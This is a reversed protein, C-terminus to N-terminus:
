VSILQLLRRLEKLEESWFVRGPFDRELVDFNIESFRDDLVEYRAFALLDPFRELMERTENPKDNFVVMGAGTFDDGFLTELVGIKGSKIKDTYVINGNEFYSKIKTQEVKEEQWERVGLSLLYREYGADKTYKLLEKAYPILGDGNSVNSIIESVEESLFTLNDAQLQQKLVVLYSSLNIVIRESLIRAENYIEKADERTYGHIEAMAYFKAKLKETQYLTNDFDFVVRKIHKNGEIM